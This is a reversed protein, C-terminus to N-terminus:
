KVFIELFSLLLFLAPATFLVSDFRDMVGGHGPILKGFDKVKFTRKILSASLDGFISFVSGVVACIIANLYNVTVGTEFLSVCYVLCVVVIVSAFVGGLGGAITKNPSIQPSMKRAGFLSGIVLAGTDSGWSILFVMILYYLGFEKNRIYYLSTLFVPIILTLVGIVCIKEFSFSRYYIMLAGFLIIIFILIGFTFVGNFQVQLMAAFPYLGAFILSTVMLVKSENYKTIILSEYLAGMSILAIFANIVFPVHSFIFVLVMVAIIMLGSLIRKM